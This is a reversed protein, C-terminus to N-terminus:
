PSASAPLYSVSAFGARRCARVAAALMAFPADNTVRVWAGDGKNPFQSLLRELEADDALRRGGVRFAHGSETRVVEVVAPELDPDLTKPPGDQTRLVAGRGPGLRDFPAVTLYLLAILATGGVLATAGPRWTPDDDLRRRTLRM